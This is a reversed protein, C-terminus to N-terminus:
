ERKKTHRKANHRMKRAIWAALLLAGLLIPVRNGSIYSFMFFALSSMLLVNDGPTPGPTSGSVTLGTIGLAKLTVGTTNLATSAYVCSECEVTFVASEFVNYTANLVTDKPYRLTTTNWIEVPRANYACSADWTTFLAEMPESQTADIVANQLKVKGSLGIKSDSTCNKVIVTSDVVELHVQPSTLVTQAKGECDITLVSGKHVYTDNSANLSSGFVTVNSGAIVLVAGNGFSDERVNFSDRLTIDTSVIIEYQTPESGKEPVFVISDQWVISGNCSPLTTSFSSEVSLPCDVGTISVPSSYACDVIDSCNYSNNYVNSCALAAVFAPILAAM